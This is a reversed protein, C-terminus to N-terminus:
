QGCPTDFRAQQYKDFRAKWALRAPLKEDVKMWSIPMLTLPFKPNEDKNGGIFVGREESYIAHELMYERLDENTKGLSYWEVQCENDTALVIEIAQEITDATRM